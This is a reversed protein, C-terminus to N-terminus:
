SEWMQNLCGKVIWVNDTRVIRYNCGGAFLNAVYYSGKVEVENENIWNVIGVSFIIGAEGSTKDIISDIGNKSYGAQSVQKVIPTSGAFRKLFRDDPDKNNEISIFYIKTIPKQQTADHAFQYRFVAERIDDEAQTKSTPNGAQTFMFALILGFILM